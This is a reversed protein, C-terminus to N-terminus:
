LWGMPNVPRGDLRVEFHLHNGTSDGTTGVRGIFQGRHVGQGYRVGISSQHGYCTALGQGRYQGHSICTYNGYGGVWGATVVTGSAAAYIPTGGPAAFDTGAHLRWVHYVPDFRMGFGSSIRGNVPTQLRGSGVQPPRGARRDAAARARLIAAIASSQRQLAAYRASEARAEREATALAGKRVGVLRVIEAEAAESAAEAAKSAAFAKDATASAKVAKDKKLQVDARNQASRLRALEITRVSQDKGRAVYQLTAIQTALESPSKADLMATLANAGGGKYADSVFGDLQKRAEEVNAQAANYQLVAAVAEAKAVAVQQKAIDRRVKAAAAAGRAKAAALEAAPLKAAVETLLKQARAAAANAQGLATASQRLQRDVRRKDDEPAGQAPSSSVLMAAALVTVLGAGVVRRM